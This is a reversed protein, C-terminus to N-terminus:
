GAFHGNLCQIEAGALLAPAYIYKRNSNECHGITYRQGQSIRYTLETITTDSTERIYFRPRIDDVYSYLHALNGGKQVIKLFIPETKYNENRGSPIHDPDIRDM